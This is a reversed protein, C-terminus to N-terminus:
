SVYNKIFDNHRTCNVANCVIAEHQINIQLLLNDLTNVFEQKQIYSCKPWATYSIHERPVEVYNNVNIDLELKLPVHDLFDDVLFLSEHKTLRTFLNNTVIFHDVISYSKEKNFTYPVDACSSNLCLSLSQERNFSLFFNSQINDRSIDSNWDGGLISIQTNANLLIITMKNLVEIYDSIDYNGYGPDTSMYVNFIIFKFYGKIVEVACLRKSICQIKKIRVIFNNKWIIAVGGKGRGVRQVNEDM